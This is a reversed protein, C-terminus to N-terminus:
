YNERGTEVANLLFDYREGTHIIIYDVDYIPNIWYGDTAVVTLKHGDISFKYAYLGQAGVLRFRYKNGSQVTFVSLRIKEYPVDNHRGKGNILGSFYPVPGVDGNDYSQTPSYRNQYDEPTPVEGIIKNPYFGLGSNIQTFLDLSVEHQWDLLTLTYEGPLDIFDDRIESKISALKTPEEMVILAGFFGDTRQAGSHSHYWFTGSPSATYIYTFNESPRCQTVQGVGDTWPTGIQHMGHWHISIGEITLNNQVVIKVLQSEHVVLTPGPIQGNVAIALRYTKGDVFQPDTCEATDLNASTKTSQLPIPTGNDDINYIVGFTGRIYM